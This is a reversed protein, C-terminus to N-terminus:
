GNTVKALASSRSKFLDIADHLASLRCLRGIVLFGVVGSITLILLELLSPLVLMAGILYVLAVMPVAAAVIPLVDRMQRVAGYDLLLGSYHANIAFAVISFVALSWAIGMVGFYSGVALFAIGLAKKFVALRFFLYSYGQAMLVDLNIVHLPWLMGGICLVQLIPVAPLWADGFLGAVLPAAVVALGLMTPVSILMIGQISMQLGRRLQSKDHVSASFIPFAVRTLVGSVVSLPLQKISDARSYFGLERVGYFKGILLTYMRNYTIDLLSTALMYGGFGFLRRASAASFVFAPRWRHLMWLLVTTVCTTALTQVALAWVGFGRWALVIALAGSFVTAIAGIKMQARFELRKALLTTHISGLAGLFVTIAMVMMLPVLIPKEYFGAITPSALCLMFAMLAAMVLNFWFVTSEDTHTIDQRQVLAMSLGSDVFASAIGTFLYLLAIVGFEEPSLLRALAISVAFQLGQRLLMDAGSWLTADFAKHKLAM